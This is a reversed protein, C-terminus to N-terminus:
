LPISHCSLILTLNANKMLVSSLHNLCHGHPWSVPKRDKEKRHDSDGRSVLVEDIYRCCLQVNINDIQQEASGGQVHIVVPLKEGPILVDRKLVTDIKAAGIGLSAFSKRFFSM